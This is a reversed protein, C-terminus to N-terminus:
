LCPEVLTHIHTHPLGLAVHTPVIYPTCGSTPLRLLLWGRTAHLCRGVVHCPLWRIHLWVVLGFPGVHTVTVLAAVYCIWGCDFPAFLPPLDLFLQLPLTTIWIWPIHTPYIYCRPAFPYTHVFLPHLWDVDVVYIPV